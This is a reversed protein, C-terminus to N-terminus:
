QPMTARLSTIVIVGGVVFDIIDFTIDGGGDSITVSGDFVANGDRDYIRFWGATGTELATADSINSANASGTSFDGFAPNSLTHSTLLTGTASAQPSSPKSGTRIELTGSPNTTGQDILDVIANGSNNRATTSISVTM